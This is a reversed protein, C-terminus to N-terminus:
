FYDHTKWQPLQLVTEPIIRLRHSQFEEHPSADLVCFKKHNGSLPLGFPM